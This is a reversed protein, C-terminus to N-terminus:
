RTADEVQRLLEVAEGMAYRAELRDLVGSVTWAEGVRGSRAAIAEVARLARRPDLGVSNLAFEHAPLAELAGPLKAAPFHKLNTTVIAGACAIVAAAVVHEDDPDPLGFTGELPEWGEVEADAFHTRMQTLLDRTRQEAEVQSAGREQLKLSEHEELEELIASSWVPRYLGEIALSLLFDRQLSPWLVSTDLLATFM